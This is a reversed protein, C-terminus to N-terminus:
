EVGVLLLSTIKKIPTLFVNSYMLYQVYLRLLICIHNSKISKSDKRVLYMPEELTENNERKEDNAERDEENCM